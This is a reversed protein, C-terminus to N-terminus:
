PLKEIKVFTDYLAIGTYSDTPTFTTLINPHGDILEQCKYCYLYGKSCLDSIKAKGVIRGNENFLSVTDGDKVGYEDADTQSIHIFNEGFNDFRQSNLYSYHSGTILRLGKSPSEVLQLTKTKYIKTTYNQPSPISPISPNIKINLYDALSKIIDIDSPKDFIKDRVQLRNDYFYSGCIDEQAFMGGVKIFHTAISATETIQTDVVFLFNLKNFAEKLKHFSPYSILPNAAVIIAGKFFDKELRSLIESINITPNTINPKPLGEKSSRVYYLYDLNDTLYSLRNIWQVINKGNVYRQLGYGTIIGNKASRFIDSLYNLEDTNIGCKSLLEDISYEIEDKGLNKLIAACLFNDSAPKVRIFKDALQATKRYIPDIYIIKKGDKKLKKLFAYLHPSINHADRGFLIINDVKKLNEIPPNTYEGFDELHASQGTGLCLSGEVFHINPFHSFLIDWYNMMYGLSGSGRIYLINQDKSNTLIDAISKIISPDDLTRKKGDISIFSKDPSYIEKQIFKYLKSCVFKGSHNRNEPLINYNEDIFASCAEICDKTCVFKKM